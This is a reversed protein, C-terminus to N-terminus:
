KKRLAATIAQALQRDTRRDDALSRLLEVEPAGGRLLSNVIALRWPEDSTTDPDGRYALIHARLASIERGGGIASM